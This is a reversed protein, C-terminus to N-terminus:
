WLSKIASWSMNDTPSICQVNICACVFPSGDLDYGTINGLLILENLDDGNVYLPMNDPTSPSPSARVHFVVGDQELLLLTFSVLLTAEQTAIPEAYGVAFDPESFINLANGVYTWGGVVPAADMDFDLSCEWGGITTCTPMTIILYAPIMSNVPYDVMVVEAALDFYIGICDLSPDIVAFASGALLLCCLVTVSQRM